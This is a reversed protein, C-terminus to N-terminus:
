HLEANLGLQLTGLLNIILHLMHGHLFIPMFLRQVEAHFIIDPTWLAYMRWFECVSPGGFLNARDWGHLLISVLMVVACAVCLLFTYTNLTGINCKTPMLVVFPLYASKDLFLYIRPDYMGPHM